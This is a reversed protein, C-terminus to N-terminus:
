RTFCLATYIAYISPFLVLSARDIYKEVYHEVHDINLRDSLPVTKNNASFANLIGLLSRLWSKEEPATQSAQAGNEKHTPQKRTTWPISPSPPSAFANNTLPVPITLETDDTERVEDDDNDSDALQQLRRIVAARYEARKDLLHSILSEGASAAVFFTSVLVFEHMPTLYNTKPMVEGLLLQLVNLALLLTFSISARSALDKASFFFVVWSLSTLLVVIFMYNVLYYDTTRDVRVYFTVSSQTSSDRMSYSVQMVNQFWNAMDKITDHLPGSDGAVREYDVDVVPREEIRVGHIEWGSLMDKGERSGRSITENDLYASVPDFLVQKRIGIDSRFMVQIPLEQSDSPFKTFRMPAAFKGEVDIQYTVTRTRLDSWIFESKVAFVEAEDRTNVFTLKPRWLYSCSGDNVSETGSRCQQWMHTDKWHMVISFATQFSFQLEDINYLERVLAGFQIRLSENPLSPMMPQLLATKTRVFTKAPSLPLHMNTLDDVTLETLTVGDIRNSVFAPKFEAYGIAGIFSLVEDTDFQFPHKCYVASMRIVNAFFPDQWISQIREQTVNSTQIQCMGYFTDFLASVNDQENVRYGNEVCMEEVQKLCLEVEGERQCACMRAAAAHQAALGLGVLVVVFLPQSFFSGGALWQPAMLGFAAKLLTEPSPLSRARVHTTQRRTAHHWNMKGTRSVTLGRQAQM